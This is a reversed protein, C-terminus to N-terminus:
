DIKQLWKEVLTIEKQNTLDIHLPTVSVYNNKIAHFDTGIGNKAEKGNEGIWFQSCDDKDPYINESQHRNGLFTTQFGKVQSLEIDPVNVNLITSPSLEAFHISNILKDTIQAATEFYVGGWSALSVAMSPLGIFRGEIAAAVTGSYIVDDGLNPGSNIGAIVIDFSDDFFGCLAMHVCDSPTGDLYYLKENLKIPKLPKDITLSSSSASKNYKPAFVFVEHKRSLTDALQSIGPSNYGDDNSLLIRM